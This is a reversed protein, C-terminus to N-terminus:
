VPGVWLRIKQPEGLPSQVLLDINEIELVLDTCLSILSAKFFPNKPLKKEFFLFMQYLKDPCTSTRKLLVKVKAELLSSGKSAQEIGGRGLCLVKWLWDRRDPPVITTQPPLSSSNQDRSVQVEQSAPFM